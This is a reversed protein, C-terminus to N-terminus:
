GLALADLDHEIPQRDDADDISELAERARRVWDRAAAEDGAAAHARATAEYAAPVDWAERDTAAETIAVCRRAHWLAPEGRRLASYVRSCLWEGRALNLPRSGEARAWHWRSAHARHLMEDIELDTRDAKELLDWTSNYLAVGIQRHAAADLDVTVTTDSVISERGQSIRGL